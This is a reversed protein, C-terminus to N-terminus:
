AEEPPLTPRPRKARPPGDRKVRKPAKTSLGDPSRQSLMDKMAENAIAMGPAMAINYQILWEEEKSILGDRILADLHEQADKKRLPTLNRVLGFVYDGRRLLWDDHNISLHQM